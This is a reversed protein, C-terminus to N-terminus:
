SALTGVVVLRNKLDKTCTVLTVTAGSSSRLLKVMTPPVVMVKTVNYRFAQDGSYVEVVDGESVRELGSFVALNGRDAVSVHGTIVMNGQQGPMASDLHHGAARWATEWAAKGNQVTVGVEQVAADVGASEVVIRTPLGGTSVGAVAAEPKPRTDAATTVIPADTQAPAGDHMGFWALAAAGLVFGAAVITSAGPKKTSAKDAM